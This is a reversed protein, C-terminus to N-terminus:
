SIDVPVILVKQVKYGSFNNYPPGIIRNQEDRYERVEQASCRISEVDLFEEKVHYLAFAFQGKLMM